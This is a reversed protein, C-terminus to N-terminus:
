RGKATLIGPSLKQQLILICSREEGSSLHPLAESNTSSPNIALDKGDRMDVRVQPGNDTRATPCKLRRGKSYNQASIRVQVPFVKGLVIM